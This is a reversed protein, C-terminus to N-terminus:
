CQPVMKPTQVTGVVTIQNYSYGAHSCQTLLPAQSSATFGGEVTSQQMSICGNKPNSASSVKYLETDTSPSSVVKHYNM